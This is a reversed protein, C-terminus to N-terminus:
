SVEELLMENETNIELKLTSYYSKSDEDADDGYRTMFSIQPQFTQPDVVMGTSMLLIYPSYIIGADTETSGRYGVIIDTALMDCYVRTTGNLTGAFKLRFLNKQKEATEDDVKVFPSDKDGQLISLTYPNVIIFNGAGRRTQRAIGSCASNIHISLVAGSFFSDLKVTKPESTTMKALVEDIIEYAMENAVAQLVEEELNLGHRHKLDESSEVTWRAHFKRSKAEIARSLVELSIRNGEGEGGEQETERYRLKYILGVPGVMPQIGVLDDLIIIQDLVKVALKPLLEATNDKNPVQKQCHPCKQGRATVDSNRYNLQNKIVTEYIIRHAPNEVHAILQELESEKAFFDMITQIIKM